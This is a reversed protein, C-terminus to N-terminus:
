RGAEYWALARRSRAGVDAESYLEAREDDDIQLTQVLLDALVSAPADEPLELKHNTKAATAERLALRLSEADDPRPPLDPVEKWRARRYLRDSAAEEIAVRQLGLLWIGFRGDPLREHRVIEGLGAIPRVPRPEDGARAGDPIPAIVIRGPGDLSDEIMQRYRPEFINLPLLQQPFLYVGPLPFMPAVGSAPDDAHSDSDDPEPPWHM